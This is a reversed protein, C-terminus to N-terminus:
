GVQRAKGRTGVRQLFPAYFRGNDPFRSGFVRKDVFQTDSAVVQFHPWGRALGHCLRKGEPKKKAENAEENVHLLRNVLVTYRSALDIANTNKNVM